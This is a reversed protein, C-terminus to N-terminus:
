GESESVEYKIIMKNSSPEEFRETHNKKTM